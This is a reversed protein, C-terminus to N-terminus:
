AGEVEAKLFFDCNVFLSPNLKSGLENIERVAGNEIRGDREEPCLKTSNGARLSGPINLKPQLDIVSAPM